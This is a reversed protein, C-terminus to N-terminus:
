VLVAEIDTTAFPLDLSPAPQRSPPDARAVASYSMSPSPTVMWEFILRNKAGTMYYITEEVNDWIPTMGEGRSKLFNNGYGANPNLAEAVENGKYIVQGFVTLLSQLIADITVAQGGFGM